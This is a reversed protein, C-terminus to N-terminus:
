ITYHTCGMVNELVEKVVLHLKKNAIHNVIPGGNALAAQPLDCDEKKTLYAGRDADPPIDTESAVVTKGLYGDSGPLHRHLEPMWFIPLSFTLFVNLMSENDTNIRVFREFSIGKSGEFKFFQRKGPITAGFHLLSKILPDEKDLFYM